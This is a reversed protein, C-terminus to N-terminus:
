FHHLNLDLFHEKEQSSRKACDRRTRKGVLSSSGGGANIEVNGVALGRALLVDVRADEAVRTEPDLGLDHPRFGIQHGGGVLM